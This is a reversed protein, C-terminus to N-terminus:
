DKEGKEMYSYQNVKRYKETLALLENFKEERNAPLKGAAKLKKNYKMWNLMPRDEAQYKSPRRKNQMLYDVIQQYKEMWMDDQAREKGALKHWVKGFAFMDSFVLNAGESSLAEDPLPGSNVAVTFIQAAVGARVGLPANEVVIAEWPHLGGAKKLGMLYPDPAPKGHKVDYATIIKDETIFGKFDTTLRQILPRQGSGTVVVIQLGDKRIKKMLQLIGPMMEAEPMEAFRAAKVDYLRQAEEDSIDRGQQQKVMQRITDTGKQGETAYADDATMKIGNEEMAKVWAVAHNPMSNILVGDMDFLVAKPLFQEYGHKKLYANISRKIM